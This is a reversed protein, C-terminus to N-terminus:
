WSAEWIPEEKEAPDEIGAEVICGQDILLSGWEDPDDVSFEKGDDIRAM